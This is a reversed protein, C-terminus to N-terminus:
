RGGSVQLDDFRDIDDFSDIRKEGDIQKSNFYIGDAGASILVFSGSVIDNNNNASDADGPTVTSLKENIVNWALNGDAGAVTMTTANLLSGSQDFVDGNASKLAKSNTYDANAITHFKGEGTSLRSVPRPKGNSARYYLLPLGNTEDIFEPMPNDDGEGTTGKIVALEAPKPSYFAGFNRGKDSIPGAGVAEPDLWREPDTGPLKWAKKANMGGMLSAVMNETSTFSETNADFYSEPMYGPATNMALMYAECAQSIATLQSRAAVKKARKRAPVGVALVSIAVGVILVVVVCVVVMETMTFGGATRRGLAHAHKM